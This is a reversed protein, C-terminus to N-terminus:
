AEIAKICRLIACGNGVKRVDVGDPEFGATIVLERLEDLEFVRFGNGQRSARTAGAPLLDSYLFTTAYFRGGPELSRWIERLAQSSPSLPSQIM